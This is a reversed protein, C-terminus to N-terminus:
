NLKVPDDLQRGQGGLEADTILPDLAQTQLEPNQATPEPYLKCHMLPPGVLNGVRAGDASCVKGGIRLVKEGM